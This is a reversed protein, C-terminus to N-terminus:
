RRAPGARRSACRKERSRSAGRPRARGGARRPTRPRRSTTAPRTRRTSCAAARIQGTSVAKRRFGISRKLQGTGPPVVRITVNMTPRALARLRGASLVGAGRVAIAEPVRIQVVADEPLRAFVARLEADLAAPTLAGAEHVHMPRAPLPRFDVSVLRGGPTGDGPALALILFGKREQREAFSTREVVADVQGAFAPQLATEFGRFFDDGRRRREVRPRAPLDFGLHTDSVFLVKLVDGTM